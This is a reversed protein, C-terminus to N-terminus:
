EAWGKVECMADMAIQELEDATAPIDEDRCYERARSLSGADPNCDICNAVYRVAANHQAQTIM